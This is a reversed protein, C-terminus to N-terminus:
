GQNSPIVLQKETPSSIHSYFLPLGFEGLYPDLCYTTTYEPGASLTFTNKQGILSRDGEHFVYEEGCELNIEHTTVTFTRDGNNIAIAGGNHIIDQDGDQDVDAKGIKCFSQVGTNYVETTWDPNTFIAGTLADACVYYIDLRGDQDFDSFQLNSQPGAMGCIQQEVMLEFTANGM